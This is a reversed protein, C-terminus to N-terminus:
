RHTSTPSVDTYTVSRREPHLIRASTTTSLPKATGLITEAIMIWPNVQCFVGGNEKVGPPYSSIEGLELYYHSFPPQVLM